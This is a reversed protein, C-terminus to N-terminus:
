RKAAKQVLAADLVPLTKGDPTALPKSAVGYAAISDGPRVDLNAGYDVRVLCPTEQCDRKADVLLRTRHHVARAEVVSGAVVAPKGDAAAPNAVLAGGRLSALGELKKAAADLSAVREVDVSAVRPAAKTAADGTAAARLEIRQTGQAVDVQGEFSGDANVALSTGNATVTAGKATSGSIWVRAEDTVLKAGPAEVRLPLVAVRIDVEGRSTKKDKGVVVYPLKRELTRADGLGTTETTVDYSLTAKGSADLTVPKGDVTITEGREADVDVRLVPPTADLGSLDARLRYAVPLVLKVTEDRGVGPRDLAIAFANDGIALPTPLDIDAHNKAFVASTGGVSAKTGDPCSECVLHLQDKGGASIAATATLPVTSRAFYLLAAGGLLVVASAVVAVAALPVGRRRAVVPAVPAAEPALPAPAPLVPPPQDLLLTGGFPNPRPAPSAVPAAGPQSHLPAIGPMAVGLMTGSGPKAAQPAPTPVPAPAPAPLPMSPAPVGLMTRAGLPMKAPAPAPAPAPQPAAAVAPRAPAGVRLDPAAFGLMTQAALAPKAPPTQEAPAPQTTAPPPALPSTFGLMTQAATPAAAVVAGCRPCARPGGTLEQGCKACSTPM